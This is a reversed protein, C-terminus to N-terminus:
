SYIQKFGTGTAPDDLTYVKYQVSDSNTPYSITIIQPTYGDIQEFGNGDKISKLDVYSAPYAYVFREDNLDITGTYGNGKVVIKTASAIFTNVNTSDIDAVTKGFFKGYIFEYTATKTSTKTGDYVLEAKVTINSTIVGTYSYSYNNGSGVATTKVKTNGVYFNVEKLKSRDMTGASITVAFDVGTINTGKEKLGVANNTGKDKFTAATISPAIDKLLLKKAFDTFTMDKKFVSGSNAAGCTVNSIIQETLTADGSGGSIEVYEKTTADWYYLKDTDKAVYCNKTDGTTPFDAKTPKQILKGGTSTPTGGGGGGWNSNVISDYLADRDTDNDFKAIITEGTRVVIHVLYDNGVDAKDVTSFHIINFVRDEVEVFLGKDMFEQFTNDMEDASGYQEKINGGNMLYFILTNNSTDKKISSIYFIGHERGDISKFM